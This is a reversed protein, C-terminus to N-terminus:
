PGLDRLGEANGAHLHRLLYELARSRDYEILGLVAHV